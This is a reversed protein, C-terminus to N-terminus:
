EGGESESRCSCVSPCGIAYVWAKPGSRVSRVRVREKYFKAQVHALYMLRDWMEPTM